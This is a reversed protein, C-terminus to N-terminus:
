TDAQSSRIDTTLADIEDANRQKWDLYRRYGLRDVASKEMPLLSNFTELDIDPVLSLKIRMFTTSCLTAEDFGLLRVEAAASCELYTRLDNADPGSGAKRPEPNAPVPVLALLVFAATIRRGAGRRVNQSPTRRSQENPM